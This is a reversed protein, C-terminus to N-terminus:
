NAPKLESLSTLLHQRATDADVLVGSINNGSGLSAVLQSATNAFLADDSFDIFEVAASVEVNSRRALSRVGNTITIRGDDPIADLSQLLRAINIVAPTDIDGGPVLDLPTMFAKAPVAEGLVIDGISFQVQGGDEFQFEGDPGTLGKLSGSEFSVGEVPGDVLQGDRIIVVLGNRQEDDKSHGGSSAVFACQTGGGLLPLVLLAASIRIIKLWM